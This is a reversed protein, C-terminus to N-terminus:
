PRWSPPGKGLLASANDPANSLVLDYAELSESWLRKAAHADELITLAETTEGHVDMFGTLIELAHDPDDELLSLLADL